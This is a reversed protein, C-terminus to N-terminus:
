KGSDIYRTNLFSMIFQVAFEPHGSDVFDSVICEVYNMSPKGDFIFTLRGNEEAFEACWDHCEMDKEWRDSSISSPKRYGHIMKKKNRDKFVKPTPDYDDFNYFSNDEELSDCYPNCPGYSVLEPDTEYWTNATYESYNWTFAQNGNRDCYYIDCNDGRMYIDRDFTLLCTEYEFGDSDTMYMRDIDIVKHWKGVLTATYECGITYKLENGIFRFEYEVTTTDTSDYGLFSSGEEAHDRRTKRIYDLPPVLKWLDDWWQNVYENGLGDEFMSSRPFKGNSYSFVADSHYYDHSNFLLSNM